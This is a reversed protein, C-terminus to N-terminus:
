EVTIEGEGAAFEDEDIRILAGRDYYAIGPVGPIPEMRRRMTDVVSISDGYIRRYGHADMLVGYRSGVAGGAGLDLYMWAPDSYAGSYWSGQMGAPNNRNVDNWYM